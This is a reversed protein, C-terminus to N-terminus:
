RLKKKSISNKPIGQNYIVKCKLYSLIPNKSKLGEINSYSNSIVCDALFHFIRCFSNNIKTSREGAFLKWRKYPLSALECLLNPSEIFSLIVDPKESMFYKRIKWIFLLPNNKSKCILHVKIGTENLENLYFDSEYYILFSVTCDKKKFEKALTVLQRQAGGPGICDIVCIIKM